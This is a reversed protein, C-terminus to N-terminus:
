AHQHQRDNPHQAALDKRTGGSDTVAGVCVQLRLRLALEDTGAQGGIDRCLPGTDPGCVRGRFVRDRLRSALTRSMQATEPM